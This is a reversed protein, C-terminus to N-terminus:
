GSSDDSARAAASLAALRDVLAGVRRRVEDRERHWHKEGDLEAADLERELEEVRRRLEANDRGLEELREAAQRVRDELADLFEIGM